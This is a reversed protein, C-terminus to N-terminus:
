SRISPSSDQNSFEHCPRGDGPLPPLDVAEGVTVRLNNSHWVSVKRIPFLLVRVVRFGNRSSPGRSARATRTLAPTLCTAALDWVPRKGKATPLVSVSRGEQRGVLKASCSQAALCLGADRSTEQRTRDDKDATEAKALPPRRHLM